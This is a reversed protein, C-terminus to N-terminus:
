VHATKMLSMVVKKCKPVGSLVQGSPKSWKSCCFSWCLAIPFFGLFCCPALSGRFPCKNASHFSFYPPLADSAAHLSPVYTNPSAFMKTSQVHGCIIQFHQWLGQKKNQQGTVVDGHSQHSSDITKTFSQISKYIDLM